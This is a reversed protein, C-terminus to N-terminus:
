CGKKDGNGQDSFTPVITPIVDTSIGMYDFLWDAPCNQKFDWMIGESLGSITTTTEGTLKMAIYDGPLLLKDVKEFIEPENEKVWKLKSLTFNGPSNLLNSVCKDEGVGRFADNGIEM